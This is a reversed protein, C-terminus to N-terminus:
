SSLIDELLVDAVTDWLLRDNSADLRVYKSMYDEYIEANYSFIGKDAMRQLDDQTDIYHIEAGFAAATATIGDQQAFDKLLKRSSILCVPKKHIVAFNLANSQQGIVGKSYKVIQETNNRIYIRKGFINDKETTKPHPAIIIKHNTIEEIFDLYKCIMESYENKSIYSKLNLLIYDRSQLPDSPLFAYYDDEPIFAPRPMNKNVLYRDYDFSHALIVKSKSLPIASNPTTGGRIIEAGVIIYKPYYTEKLFRPMRSIVTTTFVNLPDTILRHFLNYMRYSFSKKLVYQRYSGTRCEIYDIKTKKLARIIKHFHGGTALVAIKWDKINNLYQEFDYVSNMKIQNVNCIPELKNSVQLSEHVIGKYMIEFVNLIVLEFGRKRLINLGFRIAFDDNFPFASVFIITRKEM